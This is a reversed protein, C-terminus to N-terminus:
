DCTVWNWAEELTEIDFYKEEWPVLRNEIDILTPLISHHGIIAIKGIYSHEEIFFKFVSFVTKITAKSHNPLLILLNVKPFEQRLEKIHKSLWDIERKKIESELFEVSILNKHIKDIEVYM